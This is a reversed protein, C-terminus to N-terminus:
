QRSSRHDCSHPDPAARAHAGERKNDVQLGLDVSPDHDPHESQDDNIIVTAPNLTASRKRGLNLRLFSHLSPM